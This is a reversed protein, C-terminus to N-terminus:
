RLGGYRVWPQTVDDTNLGFRCRGTASAIIAPPARADALFHQYV